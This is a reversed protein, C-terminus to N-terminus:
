DVRRIISRAVMGTTYDLYKSNRRAMYEHDM